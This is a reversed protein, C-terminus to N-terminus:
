KEDPGMPARDPHDPDIPSLWEFLNEVHTSGFAIEGFCMKHPKEEDSWKVWVNDNWRICMGEGAKAPQSQSRDALLSDTLSAGGKLMGYADDIVRGSELASLRHHLDALADDTQQNVIPQAVEAFEKLASLRSEYSNLLERFDVLKGNIDIFVRKEFMEAYGGIANTDSM